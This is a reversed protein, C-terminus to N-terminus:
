KSGRLRRLKDVLAEADTKEEVREGLDTFSKKMDSSDTMPNVFVDDEAPTTPRNSNNSNTSAAQFSKGEVMSRLSDLMSLLMENQKVLFENQEELYKTHAAQSPPRGKYHNRSLIFVGLSVVAGAAALLIYWLM